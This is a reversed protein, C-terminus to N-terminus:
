AEVFGKVNSLWRLYEKQEKMDIYDPVFLALATNIGREDLYKEFLVQLDEDLNGFPPGVYMDQREHAKDATKALAYSADPYYYINDIVIVGDQAVTEVALAGKGPKDIVINVRAPYSEEQGEGEVEEGDAASISDEPVQKFQDQRGQNINSEGEEDGMAPDEYDAEPDINNM